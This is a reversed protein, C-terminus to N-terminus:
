SKYINLYDEVALGEEFLLLTAAYIKNITDINLSANRDDKIQTMRNNSINAKRALEYVSIGKEKCYSALTQESKM